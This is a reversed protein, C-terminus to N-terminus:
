PSVAPAEVPVNAEPLTPDCLLVYWGKDPFRKDEPFAEAFDPLAQNKEVRGLSPVAGRHVLCGLFRDRLAPTLAADVAEQCGEIKRATGRVCVETKAEAVFRSWQEDNTRGKWTVVEAKAAETAQVQEDLKEVTVKLEELLRDREEKAQGLQGKLGFVEKELGRAKAVLTDRADTAKEVDALAAALEEEKVRLATSLTDVTAQAEALQETQKAPIRTACLGDLEADTPGPCEPAEAPAPAQRVGYAFGGAAGLLAAAILFLVMPGRSM